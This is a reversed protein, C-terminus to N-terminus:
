RRRIRQAAEVPIRRVDGLSHPLDVTGGFGAFGAEVGGFGLALAGIM